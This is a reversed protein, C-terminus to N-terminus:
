CDSSVLRLSGNFIRLEGDPNQLIAEGYQGLGTFNGQFVDSNETITVEKNLHFCRQNWEEKLKETSTYRNSIIFQAIEQAWSKKDFEFQHDFVAGYLPDQSFMNLGIGAMMHQQFTQVLIGCCKQNHKNWIDNPWKLKLDKGIDEFFKTVLLSIELATFSPIIHPTVSLSFCLTGPMSAWEKNGRGRGSLQNECSLLVANPGQHDMLQEKLLDQTSDCSNVHIQKIM